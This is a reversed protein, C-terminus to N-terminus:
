QTHRRPSQVRYMFMFMYLIFQILYNYLYFLQLRVAQECFRTTCWKEFFFFCTVEAFEPVNHNVVVNAFLQLLTCEPEDRILICRFVDALQEIDGLSANESPFLIIAEISSNYWWGIWHLAARAYKVAIHHV